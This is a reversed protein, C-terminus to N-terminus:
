INGKPTKEAFNTVPDFAVKGMTWSFGAMLMKQFMPNTWVDERHGLSNYYVRGDGHKRAWVSPMPPRDYDNGRMGETELVLIVHMDTNLKRHAYWEEMLEFSRGVDKMGPFEPSV